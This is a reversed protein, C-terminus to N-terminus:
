QKKNELQFYKPHVKITFIEGNIEFEEKDLYYNKIEQTYAFQSPLFIGFL